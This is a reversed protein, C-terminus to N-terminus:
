SAQKKRVNLFETIGTLFQALDPQWNVSLLEQMLHHYRLYLACTM